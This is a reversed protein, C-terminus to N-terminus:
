ANDPKKPHAFLLMGSHDVIDVKEAFGTKVWDQVKIMAADLPVDDWQATGVIKEAVYRRVTYEM